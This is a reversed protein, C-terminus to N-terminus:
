FDYTVNAYYKLNNEDTIRRTDYENDIGLQIGLGKVYALAVNWTLSTLLRFDSTNGLDHFYNNTLLVNDTDSLNWTIDLGVTGESRTENLGRWTHTAGAGFRGLVEWTENRLFDYGIGGSGSVRHDWAEFEDYDYRGKGFLFWKSDPFLFDHGYEALFENANATGNNSSYYYKSNFSRRAREDSQDVKLRVNITADNSKGQSGAVGLALSRKWGELIPTGFLGPRPPVPPEPPKVQDTPIEIRGLTPHELVVADDRTEVITGNLTDGSELEVSDAVAAAALSLAMLLTMVAKRM